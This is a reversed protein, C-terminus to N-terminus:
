PFSNAVGPISPNEPISEPSPNGPKHYLLRGGTDGWWLMKDEFNLYISRGYSDAGTIISSQLAQEFYEVPHNLWLFKHTLPGRNFSSVEKGVLELSMQTAITVAEPMEIM